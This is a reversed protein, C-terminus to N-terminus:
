YPPSAPLALLDSPMPRQLRHKFLAIPATTSRAVDEISATCTSGEGWGEEESRWASLACPHARSRPALFAPGDMVRGRTRLRSLSRSRSLSLSRSRSRSLSLSLSLSLSHDHWRTRSR